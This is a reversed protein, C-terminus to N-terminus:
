KEGDCNYNRSVAQCAANSVSTAHQNGELIAKVGVSYHVELNDLLVNRNTPHAKLVLPISTKERNGSWACIQFFHLALHNSSM